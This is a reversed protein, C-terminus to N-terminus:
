ALRVQTTAPVFSGASACLLCGFNLAINEHIFCSDWSNTSKSPSTPNLHYGPRTGRRDELKNSMQRM